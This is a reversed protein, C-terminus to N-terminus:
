TRTKMPLPASVGLVGTFLEECIQTKALERLAETHVTDDWGGSARLRRPEDDRRRLLGPLVMSLM